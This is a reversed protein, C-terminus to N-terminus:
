PGRNSELSSRWSPPESGVSSFSEAARTGTARGHAIALRRHLEPQLYWRPLHANMEALAALKADLQDAIPCHHDGAFGTGTPFPAIRLLRPVRPGGAAVVRQWAITMADGVIQHEQHDGPFRGHTLILTPAFTDLWSGLTSILRRDLHLEGPESEAETFLQYGAREAVAQSVPLRRQNGHHVIAVAVAAGAARFRALTGYCSALEDDPHAVVALVREAGDPM